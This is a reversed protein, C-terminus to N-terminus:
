GNKPKWFSARIFHTDRTVHIKHGAKGHEWIRKSHSDRNEKFAPKSFNSYNPLAFGIDGKTPIKGEAGYQHLKAVRPQTWPSNPADYMVEYGVLDHTMLYPSTEWHETYHVGYKYAADFKAQQRATHMDRAVDRYREPTNPNDMIAKLHHSQHEPHTLVMRIAEGSGKSAIHTLANQRVRPNKHHLDQVREELGKAKSLTVGDWIAKKVHGMARAIEAHVMDPHAGKFKHVGQHPWAQNVASVEEDTLGYHQQIHHAEAVQKGNDTDKLPMHHHQVPVRTPAGYRWHGGPQWKTYNLEDNGRGFTGHDFLNYEALHSTQGDDSPHGQHVLGTSTGMTPGLRWEIPKVPEKARFRPM